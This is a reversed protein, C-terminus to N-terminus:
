LSNPFIGSKIMQNIILPLPKSIENKINKYINILYNTMARAINTTWKILLKLFTMNTYKRLNACCQLQTQLYQKYMKNNGYECVHAALDTGINSLYDNFTNAIKNPDTILTNNHEISM